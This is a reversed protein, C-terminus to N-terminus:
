LVCGCRAARAYDLLAPPLEPSPTALFRGIIREVARPHAHHLHGLGHLASECCAPSDLALIGALAALVTEAAAPAAPDSPALLAPFIDWWMYCIGNLPGAGPEDRHSLHPTCRPALLRAFLPETAALCRLRDEVPVARDHIAIWFDSAGPQIIYRLGQAIQSDALFALPPEPDEFLRTIHAVTVSAPAQWLPADALDYWPPQCYPVAHDFVHAIWAAFDLGTVTM